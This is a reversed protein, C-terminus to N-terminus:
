NESLIETLEPYRESEALDFNNFDVGGLEAVKKWDEQASSVDGLKYSSIGRMLLLGKDDPLYRLGSNYLKIAKEPKNKEFLKRNGSKYFIQARAIFYENIESKNKNSFVMSLEQESEVPVGNKYAPRWMGETEKLIRIVEADIAKCVSNVVEFNTPVGSPTVTFKIVETGELSCKVAMDPYVVNKDLYENILGSDDTLLSTANKVGIFTAPTTKGEDNVKVDKAFVTSSLILFILIFGNTKMNSIKLFKVKFENIYLENLHFHM